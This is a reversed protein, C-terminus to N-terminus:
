NIIEEGLFSLNNILTTFRKHFDKIKDGERMELVDYQKYLNSIRDRNMCMMEERTSNRYVMVSEKTTM